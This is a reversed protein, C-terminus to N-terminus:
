MIQFRINIPRVTCNIKKLLLRHEIFPNGEKYKSFVRIYWKFKDALM